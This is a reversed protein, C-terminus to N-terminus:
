TKDVISALSVTKLGGGGGGLIRGDDGGARAEKDRGGGEGRIRRCIMDIPPRYFQLSPLLSAIAPPSPSWPLDVDDGRRCYCCCYCYYPSIETSVSSSLSWLVPYAPHLALAAVPVARCRRLRFRPPLRPPLSLDPHHPPHPTDIARLYSSPRFPCPGRAQSPLPHLHTASVM